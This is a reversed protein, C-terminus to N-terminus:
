HNYVRVINKLGRDLNEMEVSLGAVVSHKSGGYNITVIRIDEPIEGLQQGVDGRPLDHIGDSILLISRFHVSDFPVTALSRLAANLSGVVDSYDEVSKKPAYEAAIMEHCDKLFKEKLEVYRKTDSSLQSANLISDARYEALLKDYEGKLQGPKREPALSNNTQPPITFHLIKNNLASRDIFSLWLDGHGKEAIEAIVQNIFEVSIRPVGYTSRGSGSPDFICFVANYNDPVVQEEVLSFINAIPKLWPSNTLEPNSKVLFYAAGIILTIVFAITFIAKNM